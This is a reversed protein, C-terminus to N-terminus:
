IRSEPDTGYALCLPSGMITKGRVGNLFVLADFWAETEGTFFHANGSHPHIDYEKDREDWRGGMDGFYKLSCALNLTYSSVCSVLMCMQSVVASSNPGIETFANEERAPDILLSKSIVIEDGAHALAAEHIRIGGRMGGRGRKDERGVEGLAFFRGSYVYAFADLSVGTQRTCLEVLDLVRENQKIHEMVEMLQQVVTKQGVEEIVRSTNAGARFGSKLFGFLANAGLDVSGSAGATRKSTRQGVSFDSLQDHLQKVKARSIYSFYKLEDSQFLDRSNLDGV